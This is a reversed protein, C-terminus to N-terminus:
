RFAVSPLRGGRQRRRGERALAREVAVRPPDLPASAQGSSSSPKTAAEWQLVTGVLWPPLWSAPM